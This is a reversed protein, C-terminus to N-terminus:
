KKSFHAKDHSVKIFEDNSRKLENIKQKLRAIEEEKLKVEAKLDAIENM